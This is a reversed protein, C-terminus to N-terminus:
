ATLSLLESRLVKRVRHMRSRVTGVPIDLAVAVEAFSLEAWSFLLLVDRDGVPMEALAGALRRMTDQADVREAVTIDPADVHTNASAAARATLRLTHVEQATHRRLLNTAIGFLWARVVSRTPEYTHRRELAVLFTESLLDDAAPGVRRALYRHLDGGHRDFLSGFVAPDTLNPRDWETKTM